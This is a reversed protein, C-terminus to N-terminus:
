EVWRGTIMTPFARKSQEALGFWFAAQQRKQDPDTGPGGSAAAFALGTARAIIYSDDIESTATETTLLAPKDGGQIKLLSYGAELRGSDTLILDRANRDIRWLHKPFITWEATDNQVVKIDDLRVQCAGLDSDYELGISIIATDTEPNALAIRVYTWTNATLAPVELTEIPSACSASDDLLIKLNGASTAVTSKVWCELYDYKSIDKSSISDTAIDGASAGAAIVFKNSGTGRKKDETDVTVTIDSDVTEDFAANCSHLLTSTVKNRYYLRNIISINSPIDFRMNRNDAHLSVDEVPDYAQGTADIIAQNIFEEIVEPEYADDWIEYTDGSAVTFSANQQFQVTNNSATYDNVYQTTQTTGDSADTVLIIKGNYTDDGGRFTNVDILTNNTGGTATGAKLVGLNYGISQRLQKRTRGQVPM